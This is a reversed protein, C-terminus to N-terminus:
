SVHDPEKQRSEAVHTLYLSLGILAIAAGFYVLDLPANVEMKLAHEFLSVILIMLIVKALRTKLDDLNEIVLIRSSARSGRADDIDSVFLEYLGLSFILMVTALLYGDVAEVIHTITEDHLAKRTAASLAPDAYGLVHTIAYWVDVTTIFFMAIAAAMSALVAVVVIFRSAWLSQEFVSEIKRM